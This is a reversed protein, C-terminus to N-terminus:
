NKGGNDKKNLTELYHKVKEIQKDDFAFECADKHKIIAYVFDTDDTRLVEDVIADINLKQFVASILETLYYADRKLIFYDAIQQLNMDTNEYNFALRWLWERNDNKICIEILKNFHTKSLEIPRPVSIYQCIMKLLEEDSLAEFNEIVTKNQLLLNKTSAYLKGGDKTIKAEKELSTAKKKAMERVKEDKNNILEKMIKRLKKIQEQRQKEEEDIENPTEKKIQKLEKILGGIDDNTKKANYRKLESILSDINIFKNIYKYVITLLEM